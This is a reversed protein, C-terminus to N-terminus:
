SCIYNNNIIFINILSLERDFPKNPALLAYFVELPTEEVITSLPTVQFEILMSM